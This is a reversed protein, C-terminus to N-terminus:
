LGRGDQISQDNLTYLGAWKALAYAAVMRRRDSYLRDYYLTCWLVVKTGCISHGVVPTRAVSLVQPHLTKPRLIDAQGARLVGVGGSLARAVVSGNSQRRGCGDGRCKDAPLRSGCLACTPQVNAGAPADRLICGFAHSAQEEGAHQRHPLKRLYPPGWHLGESVITRIIHVEM